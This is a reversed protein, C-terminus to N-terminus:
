EAALALPQPAQHLPVTEAAPRRVRFWAAYLAPLFLLTLATAVLLGGMLAVAMPGWFVSRSLPIMAFIATGATLLIPRARRVTAGVVADWAAHGAAIDQDIQDVLIVSNRMIMGALAITGLLSVFGFPQDFLLLFLAVGIMGLPATLLVLALKSFSRLQLMLFLLTLFAMVPMMKFISGQSKASEEKDGGVEIRYGPPLSARVAELAKDLRTAVDPGQVGDRVGARVTMLLEKNRRWLIPEELEYHLTALQDLSVIGGTATRLHISELGEVSLREPTVARAVVDITETGERYQTVTVGSLITQLANSLLQSDVGLARAKAQDVDLRVSKALENWDFNIDRTDPDAKFVQRVQEAVTRVHQPDEGLVRFMVPYAVPPGNQLRSVRGRVAEFHDEFLRTLGAVVRERSDIGKTMVIVQGFNANTLEPVTPLYFRPSGAGIYSTYFAVDENGALWQELKKVEADTAAYSAGQALRLDVILEPRNATPFFQKQVLQFSAMAAVFAAATVAITTWRWNICWTVLKRFASYLRSDYPDHHQVKPTPLLRYGLWPTFLVAVFWSIVLSMGVVWFISNTYEGASSKAFGVPVFGAATILTGTLMPFATSTYAFTAAQMRSFGQELKVMMMEVAIIADDVLLGLAIILAGLSIRQFDIGLLMMGVFTIALVLPVSLAVIIGTRFGLSIFSVVLVIGLAEALSQSFEHVSEDVVEPQNAVRHVTVGVPLDRQIEDMAKDLAKGLQQVNGGAQMVVGLGIVPKGNFRMSSQRPDVYGRKVDAVDGLTLTRGAASFPMAMLQEESSPAGDVRIAMREGRTEITGSAAIANQKRVLDFIQDLPIGLMALRAHSFEIYIKQDQVGFLDAKTVDPVRLLRLRAEKVMAKLEADSFGDAEFAWILSYTDGYEDNFFPGRVGGEPLTGRIDGIKKRVQYWLDPVKAPPVDDRVSVYIVTEGPKTYSQVNYFYPLEQLKTELKDTVQQEMERATAGPWAASVVMQKITFPPDEARGLNFYAFVGALTLLLMFFLTLTSNELALASLNTRTAM